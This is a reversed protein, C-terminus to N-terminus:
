KAIGQRLVCYYINHKMGPKGRPDYFQKMRDCPKM